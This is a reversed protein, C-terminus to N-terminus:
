EMWTVCNETMCQAHIHGNGARSFRLAQFQSCIPCDIRGSGTKQTGLHKVIAERAKITDNFRKASAAEDAKVEEDTPLQCKECTAGGSNYKAICPLSRTPKQVIVDEYKVGAKCTDNVTGNYHICKGARKM